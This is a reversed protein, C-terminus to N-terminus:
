NRNADDKTPKPVAFIQKPYILDPDLIDKQNRRVIDVYRIGDGFQRYAIRWLADGKNVVVLLTGNQGKALDHSTLPLTYDAIIKNMDNVLEFKLRHKIKEL